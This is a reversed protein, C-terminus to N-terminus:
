FIIVNFDFTRIDANVPICDDPYSSKSKEIKKEHILFQAELKNIEKQAEILYKQSEAKIFAMKRPDRLELFDLNGQHPQIYKELNENDLLFNGNGVGHHYM